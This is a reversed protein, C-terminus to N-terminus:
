SGGILQEPWFEQTSRLQEKDRPYVGMVVGDDLCMPKVRLTHLYRFREEGSGGVGLSTWCAQERPHNCYSGLHSM